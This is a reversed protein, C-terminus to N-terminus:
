SRFAEGGPRAQRRRAYTLALLGALLWHQTPPSPAAPLQCACGGGGSSTAPESPSPVSRCDLNAGVCGADPTLEIVDCQPDNDTGRAACIAAIDDEAPYLTGRYNDLMLAGPERSHSIGLLHGLEHNIVANLDRLRFDTNGLEITFNEDRSNIEIDADFIEGTRVNATVTTLALVGFRFSPTDVFEDRFLILNSNAASDECNFEVADCRIKGQSLATLPPSGGQPCAADSWARFGNDVITELQEATIGQDLSGDRQIAYTMCTEPWFIEEGELYCGTREDQPCPANRRLQCTRTRCYASADPVALLLSMAVAPWRAWRWATDLALPAPCQHSM